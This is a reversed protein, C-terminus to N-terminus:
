SLLRMSAEEGTDDVHVKRTLVEHMWGAPDTWAHSALCTHVIMVMGTLSPVPHVCFTGLAGTVTAVWWVRLTNMGAQVAALVARRDVGPEQV